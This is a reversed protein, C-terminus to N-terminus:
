TLQRQVLDQFTGEVEVLADYTGQQVIKGAKLVYIQDANRITSLRHAVVVRTIELNDINAMVEAQSRNDLWNTAEDLYLIRPNRVLAAAIQIRQVQGGSLSAANPGIVTHMGMPMAKIDDYVAAVRAARWADETTLSRSVGTIAEEISGEPLDGDQLVVGIHRRIAVADMREIDRGDYSVSGSLPRALGLALRLLTSKGAGSEGVIAVFQGPRAHLSVDELILPSDEYGWSVHQLQLEGRVELEQDRRDRYKTASSLGAFGIQFASATGLDASGTAPRVVLHPDPVEDMLPRIQDLGPWVGALAAFSDGLRMVALYFVMSATYITLFDGTRGEFLAWGAGLLMAAAFAPAAVGLAVLHHDYGGIDLFAQQQEKYRNAWIAYASAQAGSTRLKGIGRFFQRLVSSTDRYAAYWRRQPEFQKLGLVSGLVVGIVGLVLSLLGITTDYFFLLGFMPLLFVASLFSHVVTGSVRDRLDRFTRARTALNGSTFKQIFSPSLKFIRDQIVADLRLAVRAEIKLLASGQLIRLMTGIVALAILLVILQGLAGSADAPIVYNAIVGTVVAPTLMVMGVVLGLLLLRLIDPGLRKQAVRVLDSGGAARDEPLSRLFSWAYPYLSRALTANVRRRGRASVMTYGGRWSPLLAVPMDSERLFALLAGSDNRWWNEDDNLAVRRNRVGTARLIEDFEERKSMEERASHFSVGEWIGIVNLAADLAGHWDLDWDSSSHGPWWRTGRTLTRFFGMRATREGELRHQRTALQANAMDAALLQRNLLEADTILTHFDELALLLRGSNLLEETTSITLIGQEGVNVWATETLPAYNPNTGGITETGLYEIGQEAEDAVVWRVGRRATVVTGEDAKLEGLTDARREIQPHLPIDRTVAECVATVWTDVCKALDSTLNTELLSEFPVRRLQAGATGKAVFRLASNKTIFPLALDGADARFVHKLGSLGVSDDNSEIAFIDLSGSEVFWVFKAENLAITRNAGGLFEEGASLAKDRLASTKDSTAFEAENM